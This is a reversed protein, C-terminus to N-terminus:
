AGGRFSAIVANFTQTWAAYDAAAARTTLMVVRGNQISVVMWGRSPVGNFTFTTDICVAPHGGLAIDASGVAAIDPLNYALRRFVQQVIGQLEGAQYMRDAFITVDVGARGQPEQAGITAGDASSGRQWNSPIMMTFLGQPHSLPAMAPGSGTAAPPQRVAPAQEERTGGAAAGERRELPNAIGWSKLADAPPEPLQPETVGAERIKQVDVVTFAGPKLESLEKIGTKLAEQFEAASGPGKLMTAEVAVVSGGPLKVAPFCHGPINVLLTELGASQLVAAYAIALDICTGSKNRLVDRPYKVHQIQSLKKAEGSPTQYSIGNYAMLLWVANM